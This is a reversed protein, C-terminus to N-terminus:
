VGGNQFEITPSVVFDNEQPVDMASEFEFFAILPKSALSNNYVVAGKIGSLSSGSPISWTYQDWSVTSINTTDNRTFTIGSLEGGGSVYGTDPTIENASIDSWTEDLDIDPIYGTGMLAIYYSHSGFQNTGDMVLELFRNYVFTQQAM